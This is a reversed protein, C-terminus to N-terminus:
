TKLSFVGPPFTISFSEQVPKELSSFDLNEILSERGEQAKDSVDSWTGKWFTVVQALAFITIAAIVLWELSTLGKM